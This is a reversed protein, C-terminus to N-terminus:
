RLEVKAEAASLIEEVNFRHCEKREASGSLKFLALDNQDNEKAVDAFANLVNDSHTSVFFQINNLRSVTFLYVILKKIISYHLGDEIEDIIILGNRLTSADLVLHMVNAFGGGLQSAPMLRDMGIDVYIRPVGSDMLPVFNRVRSDIIRIGDVAVQSKNQKVLETLLKHSQSWIDRFYPSAFYGNVVFPCDDSYAKLGMAAEGSGASITSRNETEWNIRGNYQKQRFRFRFDAGVLSDRAVSSNLAELESWIPSIGLRHKSSRGFFTSWGELIIPGKAELNTFLVRFPLDLGPLFASENRFNYLSVVLTANPGGGLLFPVELLSTKGSGNSGTIVNIRSLGTVTLRKFARYGHISFKQFM